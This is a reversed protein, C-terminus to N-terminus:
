KEDWAHGFTLVGCMGPNLRGLVMKYLTRSYMRLTIKCSLTFVETAVTQLFSVSHCVHLQLFSIWLMHFWSLCKCMHVRHFYRHTRSQYAPYMWGAFTSPEYKPRAKAHVLPTDQRVYCFDRSLVPTPAPHSCYLTADLTMYFLM